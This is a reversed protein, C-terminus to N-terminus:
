VTGGYSVKLTGYEAYESLVLLSGIDWITKLYYEIVM